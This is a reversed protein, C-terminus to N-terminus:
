KTGRYKKVLLRKLMSLQVPSMGSIQRDLQSEMNQLYADREGTLAKLNGINELADQSTALAARISKAVAPEVKAIAGKAEDSMEIRPVGNQSYIYVPGVSSDETDLKFATYTRGDGHKKTGLPKVRASAGIEKQVMKLAKGLVGQTEQDMKGMVRQFGKDGKLSKDSVKKVFEDWASGPAEEKFLGETLQQRATTAIAKALIKSEFHHGRAHGAKHHKPTDTGRVMMARKEAEARKKPDKLLKEVEKRLRRLKKPDKPPFRALEARKAALKTPFTSVPHAPGKKGKNPAYLTYGGGGGKKRVVERIKRRVADRVVVERIMSAAAEYQRFDIADYFELLQEENMRRLAVFAHAENVDKAETLCEAIEDKRKKAGIPLQFGSINAGSNGGGASMEDIESEKQTENM